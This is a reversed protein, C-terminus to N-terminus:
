KIQYAKLLFHEYKEKVEDTDLYQIKTMDVDGDKIDINNSLGLYNNACFNIVTKGLVNIETEQPTEIIRENKFTGDQQNIYMVDPELYDNSIYIDDWGDNNFDGVTGALGWSKNYIGAEGTVKTFVTGDNRYLQDSTTEEIQSQIVGSIKTNNKFDYRYNLVYLDLDGDKDYDFSYAQTSYGPDDVGWKKAENVFTGDQKNIFLLNRRGEDNDLSGAKSVYIDLWGDNNVDMMTAGTTFGIHDETKSSITIDEFVFDGKNNYLKNSGFNSTLYIDQLDDNNIDGVAVGAGTYLYPYNLFNFELDERITNKFLINSTEISVKSFLTTNIEKNNKFSTNTTCSVISLSFIIVIVSKKFIRYQNKNIAKM